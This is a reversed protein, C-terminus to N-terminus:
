VGDIDGIGPIDGFQTLSVLFLIREMPDVSISRIENLVRYTWQFMNYIDAITWRKVYPILDSDSKVCNLKELEVLTSFIDYLFNDLTNPYSEICELIVNFNRSAICRKTKASLATDNQIYISDQISEKSLARLTLGDINKLCNCINMASSYDKCLSSIHKICNEPITPFDEKLYKEIYKDSVAGIMVTYDSLFKDLKQVQKDNDYICVITGIIKTSEITKLTTDSLSSVFEDDYRVVYLTPEPPIFHKTKMFNIVDSVHDYIEMKGNYHDTLISLYKKKIGYESGGFVYFKRPKKNLIELGVDQITIMHM